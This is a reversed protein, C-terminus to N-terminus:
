PAVEGRTPTGNTTAFPYLPTRLTQTLPTSGATGQVVAINQFRYLTPDPNVPATVTADYTFQCTKGTTLNGITTTFSTSLPTNVVPKCGTTFSFNRFNSVNTSTDTISVGTVTVPGTNKVCVRFTVTDGVKFVRGSSFQYIDSNANCAASPVSGSQGNAAILDKDSLSLDGGCAVPQVSSPTSTGYTSQAADSTRYTAVAYYNGQAQSLPSTDTFSLTSSPLDGGVQQWSSGDLSRYVRYGDFSGSAPATWSVDIQGCSAAVALSVSGPPNIPPSTVNVGAIAPASTGGPGTCIVRYNRSAVLNGTSTPGGSLPGSSVTTWSGNGRPSEYSVTCSTANASNWSVNASTGSPITVAPDGNTSNGNTSNTGDTLTITATPLPNTVTLTVGCTRVQAGGTATFTIPYTGAVTSSGVTVQANTTAPPVQSNNGYSVTTGSPLSSNTWVVPSNFGGVPNLTSLVFNFPAGGSSATYTPPTCSVDFGAPTGIVVTTIVTAVSGGFGACTARYDRSTSLSGSLPANGSPNSTPGNSITTWTTGTGSPSRYDIVCSAANFSTWEINVQNGSPITVTGGASAYNSNNGSERLTLYAEPRAYVLLGSSVSRTQGSPGGGTSGLMTFPKTDSVTATTYSSKATVVMSYDGAPLASVDATFSFSYYYPVPDTETMTSCDYSGDQGTSTLNLTYAGSVSQGSVAWGNAVMPDAIRYYKKILTGTKPDTCQVFGSSSIRTIGTVTGTINLTGTTPNPSLSSITLKALPATAHAVFPFVSVSIPILGACLVFLSLLSFLKKSFFAM